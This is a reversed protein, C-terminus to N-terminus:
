LLRIKKKFIAQHKHSMHFARIYEKIYIHPTRRANNNNKYSVYYWVRAQNIRFCIYMHEQVYHLIYSPLNYCFLLKLTIQFNRSHAQALDDRANREWSRIRQQTHTIQIGCYCFFFFRHWCSNM